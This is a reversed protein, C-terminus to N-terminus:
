DVIYCDIILKIILYQMKRNEIGFSFIFYDKLETKKKM